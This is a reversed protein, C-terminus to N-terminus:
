VALKILTSYRDTLMPQGQNWQDTDSNYEWVTNLAETTDTRYGGSVYVTCGLLAVAYSEITHDPMDVGQEWVGSVPDWRQVESVPHWHYGGIVLMRSSNSARGCQRSPQKLIPTFTFPSLDSEFDNLQYNSHLVSLASRLHAQNVDLPLSSLLGPLLGIRTHPDHALWRVLAEEVM